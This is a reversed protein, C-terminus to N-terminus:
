NSPRLGLFPLFMFGDWINASHESSSSPQQTQQQGQESPRGAHEQEEATPKAPQLYSAIQVAHQPQLGRARCMLHISRLLRLQQESERAKAQRSREEASKALAWAIEREEYSKALLEARREVRLAPKLRVRQRKRGSQRSSGSTAYSAADSAATGSSQSSGAAGDTSLVPVEGSSSSHGAQGADRDRAVDPGGAGAAAAGAAAAPPPAPAPAPHQPASAAPLVLSTATAPTAATAGSTQEPRAPVDGDIHIVAFVVATITCIPEVLNAMQFSYGTSLVQGPQEAQDAESHWQTVQLASLAAVLVSVACHARREGLELNGLVVLQSSLVLFVMIGGLTSGSCLQCTWTLVDLFHNALLLHLCPREWNPNGFLTAVLLAVACAASRPGSMLVRRTSSLCDFLMFAAAACTVWAQCPGYYGDDCPEMAPRARSESM